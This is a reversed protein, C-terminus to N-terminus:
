GGAVSLNRGATSPRGPAPINGAAALGTERVTLVHGDSDSETIFCAAGLAAYACIAASAGFLSSITSSYSLRGAPIVTCKTCGTGRRYAGTNVRGFFDAMRAFSQYHVRWREMSDYEASILIPSARQCYLKEELTARPRSAEAPFSGSLAAGVVLLSTVFWLGSNFSGTICRKALWDYIPQLASGINGTANIVAIGIAERTFRDVSGATWFIAM